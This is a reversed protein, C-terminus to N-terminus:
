GGLPAGSPWLRENSRTMADAISGRPAIIMAGSITGPSDSFARVLAGFLGITIATALLLNKMIAGAEWLSARAPDEPPFGTRIGFHNIECSTRV